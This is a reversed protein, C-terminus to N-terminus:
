DDTMNETGGTEEEGEIIDAEQAATPIGELDMSEQEWWWMAVRPEPRRKTTMYLDM